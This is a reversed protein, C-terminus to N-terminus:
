FCQFCQFCQAGQVAVADRAPKLLDGFIGKLQILSRKVRRKQSQFLAAPDAGAPSGRLVIPSRLKVREGTAALLLEAFFGFIPRAYGGDDLPKQVSCSMSRRRVNMWRRTPEKRFSRAPFSM